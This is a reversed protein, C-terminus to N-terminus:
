ITRPQNEQEKAQQELLEYQNILGDSFGKLFQKGQVNLNELKKNYNDIAYQKGMQYGQSYIMKDLEEQSMKGQEM